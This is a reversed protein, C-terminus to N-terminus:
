RAIRKKDWFRSTNLRIDEGLRPYRSSKSIDDCARSWNSCECLCYMLNSLYNRLRSAVNQKRYMTKTYAYHLVSLGELEEEEACMWGFIFTEDEPLVAVAVKCTKAKYEVLDHMARFFQDRPAWSHQPDDAMSKLWSNIIFPIDEEQADRIKIPIM